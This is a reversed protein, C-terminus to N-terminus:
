VQSLCPHGIVEHHAQCRPQYEEDGIQVIPSDYHAPQGNVLRQSYEAEDQCVECIAKLPLSRECKAILDQMTKQSQEFDRLPFYERRFDRDLGSLYIHVGKQQLTDMVQLVGSDLLFVEDILCAQIPQAKLYDHIRLARKSAPLIPIAKLYDPRNQEYHEIHELIELSQSIGIAQIDRCHIDRSKIFHGDRTDEKPKFALFPTKQTFLAEAKHVLYRSKGSKMPGFCIETAANLPSGRSLKNHQSVCRLM